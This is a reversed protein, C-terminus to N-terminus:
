AVTWDAMRLNPVKGFDRLNSTLLTANQSLAIGAIRLDLTGIRIKQQKLQEALGAAKQDFPLIQSLSFSQILQELKAYATILATVTAAKNIFARWGQFQEQFSIITTFILDPSHQSLRLSLHGFAPESRRQLISLHDTDLIFYRM